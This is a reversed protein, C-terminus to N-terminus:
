LLGKGALIDFAEEAVTRTITKATLYFIKEGHGEGVARVAPFLTSMTKGVGTPAQIFLQKRRLITRYVGAVLDRQGTRYSFPFELQQMSQNRKTRWEIQYDLWKRYSAVLQGFWETLKEMSYEMQFRRIEETELHAYTMQIGMRNKQNQIGYMYAYCMAQAQHVFVPEELADIDFYVGKIEDITVFDQDKMIGDARGELRIDYAGCDIVHVLSVEAHYDTGMRGQIKRHLRSGKQMADLDARTRKRNDLDGSRFIFEVLTRVSIKETMREM